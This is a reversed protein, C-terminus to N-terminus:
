LVLNQGGCLECFLLLFLVVDLTFDHLVIGCDSGMLIRDALKAEELDIAVEHEAVLVPFNLNPFDVSRNLLTLQEDVNEVAVRLLDVGHHDMLVSSEKPASCM